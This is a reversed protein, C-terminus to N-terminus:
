KYTYWQKEQVHAADTYGTGLSTLLPSQVGAVQPELHNYAGTYAGSVLGQAGAFTALARLQQAM